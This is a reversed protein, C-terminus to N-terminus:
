SHGEEAEQGQCTSGAMFCTPLNLLYHERRSYMLNCAIFSHLASVSLVSQSVETVATESLSKALEAPNNGEQVVHLSHPLGRM